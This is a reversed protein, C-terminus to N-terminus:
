DMIKNPNSGTWTWKTQYQISTQQINIKNHKPIPRSNELDKITFPHQLKDLSKKADLSIIMPTKDKLKIIYHIQNISKWKNFCGQM